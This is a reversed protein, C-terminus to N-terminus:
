KGRVEEMLNNAFIIITFLKQQKSSSRQHYFFKTDAMISDDADPSASWIREGQHISSCGLPGVLTDRDAPRFVVQPIGM